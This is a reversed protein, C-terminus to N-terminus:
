QTENTQESANRSRERTLEYATNKQTTSTRTLMQGEAHEQRDDFCVVNEIHSFDGLRNGKLVAAWDPFEDRVAKGDVLLKAPYVIQTKARPDKSKIAKAENWLIKRAVSIEKPLDYDISFPTNKLRYASSMILKTDCYDRFNVIIPRRQNRLHTKRVGLRHARAIYM